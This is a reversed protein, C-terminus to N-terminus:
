HVNFSFRKRILYKNKWLNMQLESIESIMKRNSVRQSKGMARTGKNRKKILVSRPVTYKQPIMGGTHHAHDESVKTIICEHNHHLLM